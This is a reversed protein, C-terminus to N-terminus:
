DDKLYHYLKYYSFFVLRPKDSLLNAKIRNARKEYFFGYLKALGLRSLQQGARELSTQMRIEKDNLRRLNQVARKTKNLFDENVEICLHEVPNDIHDIPINKDKLTKAFLLDEYGYGKVSEDFGTEQFLEKSIRFNNSHFYIYPQRNRRDYPLSEKISGYKWHLIKKTDSPESRDYVRGGSVVAKNFDAVYTRLFDKKIIGSDCDLFLLHRGKATRGLKNRVAARGVNMPLEHYLVLPLQSLIQNSKKFSLDSGDDYCIIEIEEKLEESQESLSQVLSTVDYNYIPILISLDV